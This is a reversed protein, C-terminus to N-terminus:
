TPVHVMCCSCKRLHVGPHRESLRTSVCVYALVRTLLWRTGVAGLQRVVNVLCLRLVEQINLGNLIESLEQAEAESHPM